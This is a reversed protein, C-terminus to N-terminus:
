PKEALRRFSGALRPHEGTGRRVDVNRDERGRNLWLDKGRFFKRYPKENKGFLCKQIRLMSVSLQKFLHSVTESKDPPVRFNLHSRFHFKILNFPASAPKARRAEV